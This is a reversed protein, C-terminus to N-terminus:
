AGNRQHILHVNAWSDLGIADCPFPQLTDTEENTLMAARDVVAEARPKGPGRGGKGGKDNKGKGKGTGKGKGDGKKDGKGKGDKAMKLM